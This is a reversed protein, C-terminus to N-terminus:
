EDSVWNKLLQAVSASDKDIFREIQELVQSKAHLDIDEFAKLESSEDDVLFDIGDPGVAALVPEPEPPPKVARIVTRVLMMVMVGLLLIVV